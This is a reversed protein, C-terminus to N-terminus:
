QTSISTLALIVPQHEKEVSIASLFADKDEQSPSQFSLKTAVVPKSRPIDQLHKPTIEKIAPPMWVNEKSTSSVNEKMEVMKEVWYLIVGVHSCNESAGAMCTCHGFHITGNEHIKGLM